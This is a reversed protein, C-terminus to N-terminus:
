MPGGQPDPAAQPAIEPGGAMGMPGLPLEQGQPEQQPEQAEQQPTESAEQPMIGGGATVHQWLAVLEPPVNMGALTLDKDINALAIREASETKLTEIQLRFDFDASQAQQAAQQAAQQKAQDAQMQAAHPDAQEGQQQQNPTNPDMYYREIGKLGMADALGKLKQYVNEYNLIPGNAGGQLQIIKEDLMLLNQLDSTMKSKDGTGLGVTVTMDYETSWERPDMPVWENRLRIVDAKDQHKCVLELMKRFLPRMYQEAFQRAVMELRQSAAQMISTIGTATKNLSNADMGQNYRTSGTRQERVTDAYELMQYSGASTMPVDLNSVMGAQKVRILGGVRPTLLDDINVQGEVVERMPRNSLYLNNMTERWLATKIIQLDRTLDHVSMGTLKHPIPIPTWCVFPHNDIEENLLIEDSAGGLIVRRWNLRGKGDFDLRVFCETVSVLRSLDETNDVDIPNEGEFRETRESNSAPSDENTLNKCSEEDIGLAILDAITRRTIHALFTSDDLRALHREFLFEDPAVSYIKVRGRKDCYEVSATMLNTMKDIKVGLLESNPDESISQKLAMLDEPALDAYTETRYDDNTEYVVKSVGLRNLLGDKMASTIIEFSPNHSQFIYNIYETAQKAGEEDEPGTPEFRVTEDGVVFPKVLGPLMSEVSEMTDRSVVQSMGPENDGYADTLDGRYFTLAERRNKSYESDLHNVCADRRAKLLSRLKSDDMTPM